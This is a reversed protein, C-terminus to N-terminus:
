AGGPPRLARRAFLQLPRHEHGRGAAGGSDGRVLVQPGPHLHDEVEQREQAVAAQVRHGSRDQHVAGHPDGRYPAPKGDGAPTTLAGEPTDCAAEPTNLAGESHKLRLDCSSVLLRRIRTVQETHAAASVFSAAPLMDASMVSVRGKKEDSPNMGVVVTKFKAEEDAFLSHIGTAVLIKKGAVAYGKTSHPLPM